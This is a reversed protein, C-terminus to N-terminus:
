VATYVQVESTEEFFSLLQQVFGVALVVPLEHLQLVLIIRGIEEAEVLIYLGSGLLMEPVSSLPRFKFYLNPGEKHPWSRLVGKRSVQTFQGERAGRTAEVPLMPALYPGTLRSPSRRSREPSTYSPDAIAKLM